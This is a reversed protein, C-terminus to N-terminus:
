LCNGSSGKSNKKEFTLRFTLGGSIDYELIGNLQKTLIQVLSLGLKQYSNLDFDLPVNDGNDSVRLNIQSSSENIKVDVQGKPHSDFAHKIANTILEHIILSLPIAQNINIDVEDIDLIFKLSSKKDTWNTRITDTLEEVYERLNVNSLNNSKYLKEHVIAMSKIRTQSKRIFDITQEDDSDHTELELLGSVIALNNKVRHHIEALMVNKEKLSQRIKAEMEVRDTINDQIAIYGIHHGEDDIIPNTSYHVNVLDGEKTKNVIQGEASEGSLITDWFSEYFVDSQKGSKLIRPTKGIVEDVSFGYQVEFAPNAYQIYGDQDTIYIPNSSRDIGLRFKTLARNLNVQESIDEVLGVGGNITGGETQIPAFIVKVPTMKGSTISKYHGDYFGKEGNLAMMVSESVKKDPLKTMDIGILKDMSSGLIEVFQQNCATLIGKKDFHVIGIPANEFILRYTSEVTSSM